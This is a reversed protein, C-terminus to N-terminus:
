IATAQRYVDMTRRATETWTFCAARERGAARLRAAMEASSLVSEMASALADADRPDFLLAADGAIEPISTVNSAVVPTGCTMAELVPIGFGEYLSPYVFVDATRYLAVMEDDPVHGIVRVAGELRLRAITAALRRMGFYPAGALVLIHDTGRRRLRGFAEVTRELNKRPEITGVCLVFPAHLGYKRRIVAVQEPAAVSHFRPSVALPTVAIKDPSVRFIEVIERKTFESIAIIRRARRLSQPVAWRLFLLRAPRYTAPFRAFRVDYVTLVSTAPAGLPLYYFPVHLVDLEDRSWRRPWLFAGKAIRAVNQGVNWPMEHIRVNQPWAGVGRPTYVMLNLDDGRRSLADVLNRQYEEAGTTLPQLASADFGVRV